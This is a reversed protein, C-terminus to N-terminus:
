TPRERAVEYNSLNEQLIAILARLREESMSFRALPRVPVFALQTAQEKREEVTGLLPPPAVQGVTLLFGDEDFQIVFQNAFLITLDDIGVWSLPVQVSDHSDDVM